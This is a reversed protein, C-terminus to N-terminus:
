GAPVDGAEREHAELIVARERDAGGRSQRRDLVRRSTRSLKGAMASAAENMPETCTRLRAVTPPLRHLAAGEASM